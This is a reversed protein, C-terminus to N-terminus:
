RRRRRLATRGAHDGPGRRGGLRDAESPTLERVLVPQLVGVQRISAALEELKTADFDKRPQDPNFVIRGLPIPRM